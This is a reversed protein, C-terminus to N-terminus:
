SWAEAVNDETFIAATAVSFCVLQAVQFDPNEVTSMDKGQWSDCWSGEGNLRCFFRERFLRGREELSEAATQFGMWTKIDFSNLYIQLYVGYDLIIVFYLITDDNVFYM